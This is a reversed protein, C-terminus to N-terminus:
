GNGLKKLAEKLLDELSYQDKFTALVKIINERPFGLNELAIRAQEKVGQLRTETLAEIDGGLDLVLKKATKEGIGSISRFAQYNGTRINEIFKSVSMNSIISLATKTGIGSVKKILLEFIEKEKKDEFGFLNVSDEKWAEYVYLKREEGVKFIGPHPVYLEFGIGHCDIVLVNGSIEVIVGSILGIM